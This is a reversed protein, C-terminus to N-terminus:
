TLLLKKFQNVVDLYAEDRNEWSTIPKANKPLAQLNSIPLSTFDCPRAIIPIIKIQSNHHREVANKIEVNNIYNSAMFDSSILFIVIEAQMLKEKIKSDWIDGAQIMRDNWDNISGNRRLGSFHNELEQKILEDQHSYSIFVNVGAMTTSKLALAKKEIINLSLDVDLTLGSTLVKPLIKDVFFPKYINYVLIKSNTNKDPYAIEMNLLFIKILPSSIPISNVNLSFSDKTYDFKIVRSNFVKELEGSSDILSILSTSIYTCLYYDSKFEEVNSLTRRIFNNELKILSLAQLFTITHEFSLALNLSKGKCIISMDFVSISNGQELVEFLIFRFESLTPLRDIKLLEKSM